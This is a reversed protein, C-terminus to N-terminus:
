QRWRYYNVLELRFLRLKSVPSFIVGINELSHLVWPLGSVISAIGIHWRSNTQDGRIRMLIGDYERPTKAPYALGGVFHQLNAWSHDSPFVMERECQQCLVRQVLDSCDFSGKIYPLQLYAETWHPNAM